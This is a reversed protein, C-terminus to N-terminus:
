KNPNPQCPSRIELPGTTALMGAILAWVEAMRLLDLSQRAYLPCHTILRRYSDSPDHDNVFVFLPCISGYLTM